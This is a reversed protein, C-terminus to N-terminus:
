KKRQNLRDEVVLSVISVCCSKFRCSKECILAGAASGLFGRGVRVGVMARWASWEAVDRLSHM